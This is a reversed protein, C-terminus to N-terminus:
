MGGQPMSATRVRIRNGSPRELIPESRYLKAMRDAVHRASQRHRFRRPRRVLVVAMARQDAGDRRRNLLERFQRNWCILRMDADFVGLGHRVQDLASQLLDRNYQLAETADDLLRLASQNGISSRRLLLGLVLRASAAGIASTLLRETFRLVQIDAEADLRVAREQEPRLSAAYAAFSREARESGLYRAAMAQLDGVTISSRWLRFAGPTSAHGLRLPEDTIFLRAQLREVPEPSRLLSVAFYSALNAALSWLVGHTLPEFKLYLLAQPKLWAIGFPGQTLLSAPLFGAKVVWPLLLTYGWL